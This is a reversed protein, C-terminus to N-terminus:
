VEIKDLAILLLTIGIVVTMLPGVITCVAIVIDTM